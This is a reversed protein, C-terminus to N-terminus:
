GFIVTGIKYGIIGLVCLVIGIMCIGGFATTFKQDFTLERGEELRDQADKLEESNM